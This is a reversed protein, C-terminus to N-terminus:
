RNTYSGVGTRIIDIAIGGCGVKRGIEHCLGRVYTGSSCEVEMGLVPFSKDSLNGRIVADEWSRLIQRARFAPKDALLDCDKKVKHLMEKGTIFRTEMWRFAYVTRNRSPYKVIDALRGEKAWKWLSQTFGSSNRASISSFPPFPQLREGILREVESQVQRTMDQSLNRFVLRKVCGFSDYTDTQAGLFLNFNYRKPLAHWIRHNRCEDGFVFIVLGEAMPDLRGTWTAKTSGLSTTTRREEGRYKWGLIGRHVHGDASRHSVPLSFNLKEAYEGSKSGFSEFGLTIQPQFRNYIAWLHLTFGLVASMIRFHARPSAM